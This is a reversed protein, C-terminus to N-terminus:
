SAELVAKALRVSDELSKMVTDAVTVRIGLREIRKQFHEDVRDIVFHDLLDGYFKAVGYASVELGMSGMIQAAPGKIAKGGVIPSVGVVYAETKRLENGIAPISLIPSISLVPNSPCIVVQEAERLAEAIEPAPKANESGEYLVGTVEDKTGRKVFYEQFDLVLQSSVIKTRVREDSMPMLKANVKLMECLTATIESLYIGDKLMQTRVVHTALDRDGIKFWTEQGLKRMMDLFQFSDNAIGWGKDEDVIGALTYMVIDLDPSVHLGYIEADDGTNGVILLDDNSVLRVIGRLLKAAGVGGALAVVRTM